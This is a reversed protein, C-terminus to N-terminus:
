FVLRVLRSLGWDIIGIFIACLFVAVLVVITSQRIEPITPWSVKQLEIWVERLFRSSRQVVSESM